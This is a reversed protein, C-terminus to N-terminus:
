PKAEWTPCTEGGNKFTMTFCVSYPMQALLEKSLKPKCQGYDTPNSM